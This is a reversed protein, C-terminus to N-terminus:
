PNDGPSSRANVDSRQGSIAFQHTLRCDFCGSSARAHDISGESSKREVGRGREESRELGERCREGISVCMQMHWASAVGDARRVREPPPLLVPCFVLRMWAPGPPGAMDITDTRSRGPGELCPAWM